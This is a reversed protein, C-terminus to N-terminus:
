SKPNDIPLMTEHGAVDDVVEVIGSGSMAAAAATSRFLDGARDGGLDAPVADGQVAPQLVPLHLRPDYGARRGVRVAGQLPAQPDRRDQAAGAARDGGDHLRLAHGRQLHRRAPRGPLVRRGAAVLGGTIATVIYPTKCKPHVTSLVEPLLGDRSMVFFIRTQGFLLVLIVSPLALFAAIGLMNGVGPFGITRLVRALAENSCLWRRACARAIRMPAALEESGALFPVGDPGM